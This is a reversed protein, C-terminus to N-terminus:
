QTKFTLSLNGHKCSLGKVLQAMEGAWGKQTRVRANVEVVAVSVLSKCLYSVSPDIHTCSGMYTSIVEKYGKCFYLMTVDVHCYARDGDGHVLTVESSSPAGLLGLVM